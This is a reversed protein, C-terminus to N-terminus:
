KKKGKGKDKGLLELDVQKERETMPREDVKKDTDIRITDVKSRRFDLVEKCDVQRMEEGTRVDEALEEIRTGKGKILDSYMKVKAKKENELNKREDILGALADAKAEKEAPTLPCRLPRKIPKSTM